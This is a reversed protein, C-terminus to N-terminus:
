KRTIVGCVNIGVNELVDLTNEYELYKSCMYKEVLIVNACIKAYELADAYVTVTPVVVLIKDFKKRCEDVLKKFEDSKLNKAVFHGCDVEKLSSEGSDIYSYIVCIKDEKLKLIEFVKKLTDYYSCENASSTFAISKDDLGALLRFVSNSTCKLSEDSRDARFKNKFNLM